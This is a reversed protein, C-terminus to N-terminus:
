AKEESKTLVKQFESTTKRLENASDSGNLINVLAIGFADRFESVPQIVPLPAVGSQLASGVASLWELPVKAEQMALKEKFSSLRVPTGAGSPFIRSQFSKGSAWMLYLFAAEKKDSTGAIGVGDCFTSSANAKPGRPIRVYGVNGAIKSKTVDELPRAFGSGDIWIGAKGQMFLSQSENWNFGSVGAPGTNKLLDRYFNAATIAEPSDTLLKGSADQFKGGYGMFFLAWLPVNANKLGRGVAGIVGKSPDHIKKAAEAIGAFSDVPAIGKAAFLEKNYYLIWPDLNLPVSDVRGDAQTAYSMGIQTIDAQDFDTAVNKLQPRLDHLWKTKEFLRKHINFTWQLVDFTPKGSNFEIVYKQRQQQEPVQESGVTIGTLAEFEKQYKQLLEGRPNKVLLVEISQGAYRRWDVSAGYAAGPLISALGTAATAHLLTRRKIENSNM